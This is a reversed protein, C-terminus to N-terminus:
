KNYEGNKMLLEKNVFSNFEKYYSRHQYNNVVKIVEIDERTLLGDYVMNQVTKRIDDLKYVKMQRGDPNKRFTPALIFTEIILDRYLKGYGMLTTNTYWIDTMKKQFMDDKLRQIFDQPVLANIKGADTDVDRFDFKYQEDECFYAHCLIYISCAGDLTTIWPMYPIMDKWELHRCTFQVGVRRRNMAPTDEFNVPTNTDIFLVAENAFTFANGGISRAVMTDGTAIRKLQSLFNPKSLDTEPAQVVLNGALQAIASSREFGSGAMVELDVIGFKDKLLTKFYNLYTSKGNGGRGKLIFFKEANPRFFPYVSALKLNHQSDATPTILNFFDKAKELDIEVDNIIYAPIIDDTLKESHEDGEYLVGNISIGRSCKLPALFKDKMALLPNIIDRFGAITGKGDIMYHMEFNQIKSTKNGLRRWVNNDWWAIGLVGILMDAILEVYGADVPAAYITVDDSVNINKKPCYFELKGRLLPAPLKRRIRNIDSLNITSVDQLGDGIIMREGDSICMSAIAQRFLTSERIHTSEWDFTLADWIREKIKDLNEIL